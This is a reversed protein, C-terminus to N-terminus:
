IDVQTTALDFFWLLNKGLQTMQECSLGKAPLRPPWSSRPVVSLIFAFVSFNQSIDAESAPHYSGWRGDRLHDFVDKTWFSNDFHCQLM